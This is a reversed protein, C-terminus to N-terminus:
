FPIDDGDEIDAAVQEGTPRQGAWKGNGLIAGKIGQEREEKSVDQVIMGDNGYQDPEDKLLVAANLYVGKKGKYLKSKDIKSVDLSLRLIGKNMQKKTRPQKKPKDSLVNSAGRSSIQTITETKEM